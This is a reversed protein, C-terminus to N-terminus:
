AKVTRGTRYRIFSFVNICFVYCFHLVAASYETISDASFLSSIGHVIILFFVTLNQSPEAGFARHQKFIVPCERQVRGAFQREVAAARATRDFSPCAGSLGIGPIKYRRLVTKFRGAKGNRAFGPHVAVFLDICFRLLKKDAFQLTRRQLAPCQRDQVAHASDHRLRFILQRQISLPIRRYVNQRANGAFTGVPLGHSSIDQQCLCFCAINQFKVCFVPIEQQDKVHAPRDIQGRNQRDPVDEQEALEPCLGAIDQGIKDKSFACRGAM